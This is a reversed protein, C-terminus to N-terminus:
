PNTKAKAANWAAIADNLGQQQTLWAQSETIMGAKLEEVLMMLQAATQLLAAVTTPNM